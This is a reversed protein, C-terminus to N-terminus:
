EKSATLISRRGAFGLYRPVQHCYQHYDKRFLTKLFEEETTVMLHAIAGYLALWAVAQWSPYLIAFGMLLVGYSVLQPNRSWRYPGSQRLERPQNGISTSFGLYAMIAITSLLGIIVAALGLVYQLIHEPAPPLMPWPVTFYLYPLNAHLGFILFELFTSFPSLSGRQLYDRRVLLRFVVMALLLIILVGIWYIMFNNKKFQACARM